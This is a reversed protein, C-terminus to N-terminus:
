SRENHVDGGKIMPGLGKDELEEGIRSPTDYENFTRNDRNSDNLLHRYDEGDVFERSTTLLLFCHMSCFHLQMAGLQPRGSCATMVRNRDDELFMWGASLPKGGMRPNTRDETEVYGCVNCKIETLERRM